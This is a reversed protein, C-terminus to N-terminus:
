LLTVLLPSVLRVASVLDSLIEEITLYDSLVAERRFGWSSKDITMASEWKHSQLKDVLVDIYNIFYLM